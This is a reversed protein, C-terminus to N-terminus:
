LVFQLEQGRLTFVKVKEQHALASLSQKSNKRDTNYVEGCM